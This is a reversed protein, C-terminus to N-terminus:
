RQDYSLKNLYSPTNAKAFLGIQSLNSGSPTGVRIRQYTQPLKARAGAMPARKIASGKSGERLVSAAASDQHTPSDGGQPSKQSVIMSGPFANRMKPTQGPGAPLKNMSMLKDLRQEVYRKERMIKFNLATPSLIRFSSHKHEADEDVAKPEEPVVVESGKEELKPPPERVKM